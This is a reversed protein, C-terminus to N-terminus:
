RHASSDATAASATAGSSRSTRSARPIRAMSDPGLKLQALALALSSGEPEGPESYTLYVSHDKDYHPSLFVGLM